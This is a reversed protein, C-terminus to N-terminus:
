YVDIIGGGIIGGKLVPNTFQHQVPSSFQANTFTPAFTSPSSPFTTPVPNVSPTASP